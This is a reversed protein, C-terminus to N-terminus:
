PTPRTQGRMPRFGELPVNSGPGSAPPAHAVPPPPPEATAAPSPASPPSAEAPRDPAPNEPTPPPMEILPIPGSEPGPEPPAEPRAEPPFPRPSPLPEGRYEPPRVPEYRNPQDYAPPYYPQYQPAACGALLLAGLGALPGARM